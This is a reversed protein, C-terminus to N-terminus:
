IRKSVSDTLWVTQLNPRSPFSHIVYPVDAAIRGFFINFVIHHYRRVEGLCEQGAGMPGLRQAAFTLGLGLQWLILHESYLKM